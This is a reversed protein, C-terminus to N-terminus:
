NAIENWWWACLVPSIFQYHRSDNKELYGDHVLINLLRELEDIVEHETALNAIEAATVWQKDPDSAINLLIKCFRYEEVLLAQPKLRNHWHEFNNRHGLMAQFAQDIQQEDIISEPLEDVLLSLYFATVRGIRQLITDICKKEDWLQKNKLLQSLYKNAEDSTFPRMNVERLDNIHKTMGLGEVVNQLGISGAFLFLIKNKFRPQQRIERLSTLLKRVQQEGEMERINELAQPFEDLMMVIPRDLDLKDLFCEFELRFDIEKPNGFRVQKGIEEINIQKFWRKTAIGLGDLKGILHQDSLQSLLKRYFEDLSDVSEIILYTPIFPESVTTEIHQMMLTKGIRRHGTLIIHEGNNLTNITRDIVDHLPLYSTM